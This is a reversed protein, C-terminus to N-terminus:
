NAEHGKREWFRLNCTQCPTKRAVLGMSHWSGRSGWINRSAWLCAGELPVESISLLTRAPPWSGGQLRPNKQKTPIEPVLGNHGLTVGHPLKRHSPSPTRPRRVDGYSGKGVWSLYVYVTVVVVVVFWYATELGKEWWSGGVGQGDPPELSGWIGAWLLVPIRWPNHMASARAEDMPPERLASLPRPQSNDIEIKGVLCSLGSGGRGTGM